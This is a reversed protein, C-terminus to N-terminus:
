TQGRKAPLHSLWSTSYKDTTTSGSPRLPNWSNITWCIDLNRLIYLWLDKLSTWGTVIIPLSCLRVHVSVHGALPALLPPALGNRFVSSCWTGTKQELPDTVIIYIYKRFFFELSFQGSFLCSVIRGQQWRSATATSARDQSWYHWTRFALALQKWTGQCRHSSTEM